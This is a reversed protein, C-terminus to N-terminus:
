GKPLLLSFSLRLAWGSRKSGVPIPFGSGEEPSGASSAGTMTTQTSKLMSAFSGYDRDPNIKYIKQSSHNKIRAGGEWCRSPQLISKLTATRTSTTSRSISTVKMTFSDMSSTDETVNRVNLPYAIFHLTTTRSLPTSSSPSTRSGLRTSNNSPKAPAPLDNAMVPRPKAKGGTHPSTTSHQSEMRLEHWHKM